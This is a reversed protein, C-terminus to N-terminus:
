TINYSGNIKTCKGIIQPNEKGSMIDESKYINLFSDIYYVIGNIEEAIVEIKKFVERCENTNLIGNPTGKAHTGCYENGEKRRRTCQEDNARRANCRNQSPISNKLRKRKSLDDNLIQLRQYEFVYEILEIMKEFECFELQLIKSRIDFKLTKIYEDIKLNIRKEM